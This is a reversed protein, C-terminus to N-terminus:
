PSFSHRGDNKVSGPDRCLDFGFDSFFNFFESGGSKAGAALISLQYTGSGRGHGGALLKSYHKLM